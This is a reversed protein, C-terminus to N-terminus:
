LDRAIGANDRGATGASATTTRTFRQITTANGAPVLVFIDDGRSGVFSGPGALAYTGVAARTTLDYLHLTSGEVTFITGHVADWALDTITGASLGGVYIMDAARTDAATFVDGGRTVLVDGRPSAWVNGSMRYEGNYPSDWRYTTAGGSLVDFHKIDSPTLNTDAVYVKQESPHLALRSLEAVQNVAGMQAGTAADFVRLYTWQGSGSMVVLRGDSTAVMDSPDEAIHFERDKVQAALDFSAVYGEHTGDYWYSSHDRTLEAVFLRSGDPTIAVSEPMYACSFEREIFGTELNVFYIKKGAKWSAYLYPRVPDFAVDTPVFPLAFVPPAPDPAFSVNVTQTQDAILGLSDRVQLRVHKTGAVDFRRTLAPTAQFPTDWVGDNDLDWRYSLASAPDEVDRSPSADLVFDTLPTGVAPSITFLATPATNAGGGPVPHDFSEIRTTAGTSILAYVRGGNIGVFRGAASVSRDGIEFRTVLNYYHVVSGELTFLAAHEADWALDTIAGTSLRSSYVMDTASTDGTTFLYGNRDVLVDGLPSAWVIRGIPHQSNYASTWRRTIAGTPTLDFRVVDSSNEQDAAYGKAESRSLALRSGQRIQSMSGTQVGTVADFTKVYTWQNSGSAVVLRGSSTAVIDSPDEAIHIEREMVQAALDFSAVYGERQGDAWVGTHERTLEAVFLRSGDPTVAMSEPTYTCPFAREIFGTQLNMFYVMKASKLSAYLYPRVPDFVVDTPVFPLAFAPHAGPPGGYDPGFTVHVPQVVDATLALADRVQLRVFRTGAIDYRRTVTPTAQFPTDWIGDGDLDWRFQLATAPTEVDTSSSADFVYDTLPTGGSAPTMAFRPTPATNVAGALAPHAYSEIRTSTGLTIGAYVRGGSVGLFSGAGSLPLNGIELRSILNYYRLMSGEITFIVSRAADWALDTISGASLASVYIMDSLQADGATYVDGGRTVLLDGRPSAWVNGSMRHEGNYPSDWKRSIGGAATVDYRLIDSPSSITDAVYVKGESPHLTLRYRVDASSTVGLQQGTVADFVRVFGSSSGSGTSVVLQGNSTAVLDYPDEGIHFERDKVQTALDISAVYGDHNASSSYARTLLGVFLRSGDPTLTMPSPMTTFSFEHEIFGTQLNILYVTKASAVSAYMYPRAPDFVVDNPVFPLVFAPAETGPASGVNVFRITEAVLGLPDRVQLRVYKTGAVDFRHTTVPSSLFPTDWAGDNDFDWRYSLTTAPDERDTSTSADLTFDDLITGGSGPTITFAATPATNTAGGPAPHQFFELRTVTADPIAVYINDGGVGLFSGAGSMPRSGIPLRTVLNYSHVDQGELTFIVNRGADWALDTISGGSLPAVYIMDSTQTVGATYVDGGRTVLVDGRPSAWVNGDMRHEGHYPSDWKSTIAGPSVDFRRIDSPFSNTDAAYFRAETPYLALRSSDSVGGQAATQQGTAADFERIYTWQGSGSSVLLHGDSTALLDYPDEVIRFERDKVRQELDFSAVYGEHDGDFWYPSHSRTTLAVFLRSGNPTLALAEPMFSFSFVREILGTTLNVFYVKKTARESAYLYPRAPDFVADTIQFPLSFPAHAPGASGPDSEFTVNFTRVTDAVLALHDRVQLRVTKTGATNYRHTAFPTSEFPTDWSGNGDFDWRFQLRDLTDEQDKSSSADFTLDVQTTRGTEPGVTFQALPATNTAGDPAPRPFVQLVTASASPVTVYAFEGNFGVFTGPGSTSVSGIELRSVANYSHLASGELTLIVRRTADWAAQTIPGASLSALYLMDASRSDSASFLDGGQMLLTDGAPSMWLNTGIRHASGNSTTWALAAGGGSLLTYHSIESPSSDTTVTYACRQSPCLAIHSKQRITPASTESGTDADFVRLYTWQGSGSVVALFGDKTGVLDFPDEAIAFERDKLLKALDFRAVFGTHTGNAWYDDHERTLLAVYLRSGDPSLALSEPMYQFEFEREILGTELNVVDLRKADKRSAYLYPQAPDFLVDTPTFPLVFPTHVPGPSGPDPAFTVDFTQAADAVLALHDRVQVRATKTGATNYRHSAIPTYRFPTDWVGDGDFDWRYSLWYPPDDLDFSASADFVLDKLTTRGSAPSIAFSAVPPTNTAGGTAPNPLSVVRTTSGDPILVHVRGDSLGVFRGYADLKQGGIEFHSALNYYHLVTGELTFVVKGPGDWAVSAISGASLAAIYQLDGSQTEGVTFRDGANTVVEDGLPSAWVDGGFRHASYSPATWRGSILGGPLIDYRYVKKPTVDTDAAYLFREGPHIALHMRQRAGSVAGTQVGTVADFVRIYTWQGSGSPVVLHGDSTAILDYPDETIHFERDKVQTTLDFSAVYGEHTGDFWYPDHSRALEAVFLRSGDPTLALSETQHSFSFEREVIGTRLNVFEVKSGTSVYVYPRIPDFVADIPFFPLTFGSAYQAPPRVPDAPVNMVLGDSTEEAPNAATFGHDPAGPAGDSDASLPDSGIRREAINTMGDGDEDLDARLFAVTLERSSSEGTEDEVGVSVRVVESTADSFLIRAEGNSPAVVVARADPKGVLTGQVPPIPLFTASGDLRAEVHVGEGARILLDVPEGLLASRRCEIRVAASSGYVGNASLCCLGLVIMTSIKLLM